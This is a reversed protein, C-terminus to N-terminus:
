INSTHLHESFEKLKNLKQIKYLQIRDPDILGINMALDVMTLMDSVEKTLKDLRSPDEPWRLGKSCEQAVEACEEALIILIEQRKTLNAM